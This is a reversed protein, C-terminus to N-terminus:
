KPYLRKRLSDLFVRDVYSYDLNKIQDKLRQLETNSKRKDSQAREDREAIEIRIQVSDDQLRLIHDRHEQIEDQLKQNEQKFKRQLDWEPHPVIFMYIAFAALVIGAVWWYKKVM